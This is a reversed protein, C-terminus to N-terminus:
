DNDAVLFSIEFTERCFLPRRFVFCLWGTYITRHSATSHKVMRTNFSLENLDRRDARLVLENVENIENEVVSQRSKKTRGLRTRSM